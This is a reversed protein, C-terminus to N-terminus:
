KSIVMLHLIDNKIDDDTVGESPERVIMPELYSGVAGLANSAQIM